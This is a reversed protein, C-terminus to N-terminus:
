APLQTLRRDRGNASFFFLNIYQRSNISTRQGNQHQEVEFEEFPTWQKGLLFCGKYGYAALLKGVRAIVGPRHREELEILLDPRRSTLLERAGDLVAEEHGEVDIKVLGVNDLELDDLRVTEVDVMRYADHAIDAGDVGPELTALAYPDTGERPVRLTAHGAADSAAVNRVEVNDPVVRALYQALEPNPELAIVNRAVKSFLYTYSGWCAGVDVVTAGPDV